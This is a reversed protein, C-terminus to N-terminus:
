GFRRLLASEKAKDYEAQTILGEEFSEKLERLVEKIGGHPVQPTLQPQLPTIQTHLGSYLGFHGNLGAPTLPGRPTM